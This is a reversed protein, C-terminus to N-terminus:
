RLDLVLFDVFHFVFVSANRQYRFPHEFGILVQVRRANNRGVIDGTVLTTAIQVCAVTRIGTGDVIGVKAGQISEPLAIFKFVFLVGEAAPDVLSLLSHSKFQIEEMWFCGAFFTNCSAVPKVSQRVQEPQSANWGSRALMVGPARMRRDIASRRAKRHGLLLRPRHPEHVRLKTSPSAWPSTGPHGLEHCWPAFVERGSLELERKREQVYSQVTAEEVPHSQRTLEGPGLSAFPGYHLGKRIGSGVAREAIVPQCRSQRGVEPDIWGKLVHVM